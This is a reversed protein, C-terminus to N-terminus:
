PTMLAKYFRRGQTTPAPDSWLATGSPNDTISTLVTWNSLDESAVVQYIRNREGRLTGTM